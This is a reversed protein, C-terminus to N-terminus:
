RIALNAGITCLVSLVISAFIMLLCGVRGGLPRIEVNGIRMGSGVRPAAASVDVLGNRCRGGVLLRLAAFSRMPQVRVLGAVLQVQQLLSPDLILRAFTHGTTALEKAAMMVVQLASVDM